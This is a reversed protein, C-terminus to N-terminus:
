IPANKRGQDKSISVVLCCYAIQLIPQKHSAPIWGLAWPLTLQPQVAVVRKQLLPQLLFFIPYSIIDFHPYLQSHYYKFFTPQIINCITIDDSVVSFQVKDDNSLHQLVRGTSPVLAITCISTHLLKIHYYVKNFSFFERYQSM